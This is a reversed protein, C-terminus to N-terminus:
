DAFDWDSFIKLPKLVDEDVFGYTLPSYLWFVAFCLLVFAQCKWFSVQRLVYCINLTAMFLAPFYHHLYLVRGVMYFPIYHFGWGGVALFLLFADREMKAGHARSKRTSGTGSDMVKRKEQVIRFAQLIPSVMLCFTTSYLVLPNMFMYFKFGEHWQSMRLGKKLIPWEHPKSVIRDPEIDPDQVFSKNTNFMTVQHEIFKSFFSPVLESYRPNQQSDTFFNEEVNWLCDKDKEAKCLTEGQDFGWSPYSKESSSLYCGTVSNKLYFKTSIAKILSEKMVSDSCAEVVWVAFNNISERNLIIKFGATFYAEERTAEIYGKTESHLLVIRDGDQLFDVNTDDTVKQFYFNNNKDRHSYTSVQLRVNNNEKIYNDESQRSSQVAARDDPYAHFHSHLYGHASKITVQKGYTIFKKLENFASNKLSLQFESSMFGDDPGSNNVIKFHLFFLAVYIAAPVMILYLVRRLFYKGFSALEMFMIKSYLDFVIYVGVQLMTLCGIWKISVVCGLFIGLCLLIWDEAVPGPRNRTVKRSKKYLLTLFYLTGATFSLLHSDLLILRNISVTGNEFVFLLSCLLSRRLSFGLERLIMFGFLPTFSAIFAHFRRMGEFDFTTPYNEKSSFDFDNSQGFVLGSLATLMKGLPPHVDFYFTRDLYKQSFKGFHAEDWTVFNGKEIRHVKIIYSLSFVLLHPLVQRIKM